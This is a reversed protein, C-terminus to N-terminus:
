IDPQFLKGLRLTIGVFLEVHSSAKGIGRSGGFDIAAAPSVSYSAAFLSLAAETSSARHTGSFEGSLSWRDNISRTLSVAWGTEWAAPHRAATGLRTEALNYDVHWNPAFDSSYIGNVTTDAHGSGRTSGATPFKEGLEIGWASADDVAFRRKVVVEVDGCGSDTRGGAVQRRWGDGGVRIGWDPTFALKLTYPLTGTSERFGPGATHLVGAELELYGPASLQAPTSATPRYPVVPTTDVPTAEVAFAWRSFGVWLVACLLPTKMRVELSDQFASWTPVGQLRRRSVIPWQWVLGQTRSRSRTSCTSPMASRDAEHVQTAGFEVREVSADILAKIERAADASRGALSRVESAVATFGRGQERERAAEVAPNLAKIDTQFAIGDILGVIDAIKRSSTSIDQTTAVVAGM